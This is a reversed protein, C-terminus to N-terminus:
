RTPPSAKEELVHPGVGGDLCGEAGTTIARYEILQPLNGIALHQSKLRLPFKSVNRSGSSRTARPMLKCNGSARLSLSTRAMALDTARHVQRCKLWSFNEFNYLCGCILCGSLQDCRPPSSSATPLRPRRSPKTM